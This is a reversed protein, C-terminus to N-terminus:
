EVSLEAAFTHYKQLMTGRPIGVLVKQWEV